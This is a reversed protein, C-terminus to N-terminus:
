DIIKGVRPAIAEALERGLFDYEINTINGNSDINQTVKGENDLVLSVQKKTEETGSLPDIYIAGISVLRGNLGAKGKEVARFPASRTKLLSVPGGLKDIPPLQLIGTRVSEVPPNQM